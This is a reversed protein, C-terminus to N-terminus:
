EAEVVNDANVVKDVESSESDDDADKPKSLSPYDKSKWYNM